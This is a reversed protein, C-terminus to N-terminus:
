RYLICKYLHCTHIKTCVSLYFPRWTHTDIRPVRYKQNWCHRPHWYPIYIVTKYIKRKWFCTKKFHTKVVYGTVLSHKSHIFPSFLGDCFFSSKEWIGTFLLIIYCDFGCGSMTLLTTHWLFLLTDQSFNEFQWLCMSWIYKKYHSFEIM